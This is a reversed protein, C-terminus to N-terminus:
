LGNVAQINSYILVPVECDQCVLDPALVLRLTYSSRIQIIPNPYPIISATRCHSDHCPKDILGFSQDERCGQPHPRATDKTCSTM